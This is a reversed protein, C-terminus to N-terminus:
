QTDEGGSARLRLVAQWAEHVPWAKLSGGLRRVQPFDGSRVRRRVTAESLGLLAALDRIRLIWPQTGRPGGHCGLRLDTGFVTEVIEVALWGKAATGPGGIRWPKPLAGTEARRRVTSVSVNLLAALDRIRLIWPTCAPPQTESYQCM